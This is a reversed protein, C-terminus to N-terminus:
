DVDLSEWFAQFLRKGIQVLKILYFLITAGLAIAIVVPVGSVLQSVSLKGWVWSVLAKIAVVQIIAIATVLLCFAVVIFKESWIPADSKPTSEVPIEEVFTQANSKKLENGKCLQM